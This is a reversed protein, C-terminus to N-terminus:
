VSTRFRATKLHRRPSVPRLINDQVHVSSINAPVSSIQGHRYLDEPRSFQTFIPILTLHNVDIVASRLIQRSETTTSLSLASVEKPSASRTESSALLDQALQM